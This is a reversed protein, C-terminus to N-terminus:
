FAETESNATFDEQVYISSETARLERSYSLVEETQKSSQFQVFIASDVRQARDMQMPQRVIMDRCIIVRVKAKSSTFSTEGFVRHIGFFLLKKKKRQM